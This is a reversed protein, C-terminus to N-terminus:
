KYWSCKIPHTACFIVCYLQRVNMDAAKPFSDKGMWKCAQRGRGNTLQYYPPLQYETIDNNNMQLLSGATERLIGSIEQLLNHNQHDMDKVPVFKANIEGVILFALILHFCMKTTLM